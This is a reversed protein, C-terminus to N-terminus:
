QVRFAPFVWEWDPDSSQHPQQTLGRTGHHPPPVAASTFTHAPEQPMQWLWSGEALGRVNCEQSLLSRPWQLCTVTAPPCAARSCLCLYPLEPGWPLLVQRQGECDRSRGGRPPLFPQSWSPLPFQPQTEWSACGRTQQPRTSQGSSARHAPLAKSTTPHRPTAPHWSDQDQSQM